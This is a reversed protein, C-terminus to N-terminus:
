KSSCIVTSPVQAKFCYAKNGSIFCHAHADTM